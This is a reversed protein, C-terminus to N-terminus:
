SLVGGRLRQALDRTGAYEPYGVPANGFCAPEYLDTLAAFLSREAANSRLQSRYDGSTFCEQFRVLGRHDLAMLAARHCLRIAETFEGGAAAQGARDLLRGADEKSVSIGEGPKVPGTRSARLARNLIVGAHIFIAALVVLCAIVLLILLGPAAQGLNGMLHLLDSLRDGVWKWFSGRLDETPIATRYEESSLIESLTKRVEDM